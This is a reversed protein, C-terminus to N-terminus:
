WALVRRLVDEPVPKDRYRRVALLTGIAEFVDM